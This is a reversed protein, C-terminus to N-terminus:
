SFLHSFVPHYRDADVLIVVELRQFVGLFVRFRDFSPPLLLSSEIATPYKEKGFIRWGNRSTGGNGRLWGVTTELPKKLLLELSGQKLRSVIEPKEKSTM